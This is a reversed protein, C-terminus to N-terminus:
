FYLGNSPPGYQSSPQQSYGQTPAAYTSQPTQLTNSPPGYENSPANVALSDDEDGAYSNPIGAAPPDYSSRTPTSISNFDPTGYSTSPPLYNRQPLPATYNLV